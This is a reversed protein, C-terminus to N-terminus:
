HKINLLIRNASPDQVLIGHEQWEFPINAETLREAIRALEESHPLTITFVNLGVANEPNPPAGAGIWTNLGIHHHYGGASIFLAHNQMRIMIEFGLISCYFEEAQKLDAVHLHIHGMTTESPVGTYPEQDAEALLQHLDLPLTAAALQGNAEREWSARPRDAYVEIGNQDPDSLYLAESFLHDSAGELPYKQRIFHQLWNALSQRDPLLLAFHYLGTTRAKPLADSIQELILLPRKGDATLSARQENEELVALGIVQTYFQVSRRLDSIRLHVSGLVTEPHLRNM